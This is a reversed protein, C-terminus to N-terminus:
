NRKRFLNCIVVSFSLILIKFDEGFSLNELYQKDFACKEMKSLPTDKENIQALGSLGPRLMITGDNVRQKIQEELTVIVPRPGIFSMSGVFINLLQPLEDLHTRRLFFGIKTYDEYKCREEYNPAELKLTRLKIINFAKQNRGARKQVFIPHFKTFFCNVIILIIIIPSLVIIFIFSFFIDLVRKFFRNYTSNIRQINEAM